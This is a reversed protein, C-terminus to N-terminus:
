LTGASFIEPFQKALRAAEEVGKPTLGEGKREGQPRHTYGKERLVALLPGATQRSPEVFDNQHILVPHHKSLTAFLRVENESWHPIGAEVVPGDQPQQPMDRFLKARERRISVLMLSTNMAFVPTEFLRAAAIEREGETGNPNVHLRLLAHMALCWQAVAWHASEYTRTNGLFDFRAADDSVATLRDKFTELTPFHQDLVYRSLWYLLDWADRPRNEDLAHRATDIKEVALELAESASLFKERDAIGSM